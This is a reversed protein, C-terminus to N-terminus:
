QENEDEEKYENLNSRNIVKIDATNYESTNGLEYYESLADICSKAIEDTDISITAYIVNREIGKLIAPSDDFGLINISGVENYDVVAQYMSTTENETLCVVVDPKDTSTDMLLNRVSEEVSFSNSTDVPYARVEAPKHTYPHLKHEKEITESIASFLVNQGSDGSNADVLVCVKIVDDKLINEDMMGIILNGYEKGLNYNSIGVFSLRESLDFDNFLTIVPINKENAENILDSLESNDDAYLIIGDVNSAIAIKVLERDSYEQSLNKSLIEVYSEQDTAHAIMSDYLSDVFNSEDNGTIMAYYREYVTDEETRNLKKNFSFFFFLLAASLGALILTIMLIIISNIKSSFKGSM